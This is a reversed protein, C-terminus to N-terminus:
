SSRVVREGRMELGWGSGVLERMFGLKDEPSILAFAAFSSTRYNIQLRDLSWAPASLPNRTPCVEEISSLLIEKHMLIGCRIILKSAAIEYYLPYTLLLVLAGTFIGIFLSTWAVQINGGRAVLNYIGFALPLLVSSWVLAMLWWDKKSHYIM